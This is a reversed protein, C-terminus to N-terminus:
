REVTESLSKGDTLQGFLHSARSIMPTLNILTACGLPTGRTAAMAELSTTVESLTGVGLFSPVKARNEDDTIVVRGGKGAMTFFCAFISEGQEVRKVAEVVFQPWAEVAVKAAERSTSAQNVQADAIGLMISEIPHYGFADRDDDAPLQSQHLQREEPSNPLRPVQNRRSMSKFAETSVGALALYHRRYLLM